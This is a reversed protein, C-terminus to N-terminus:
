RGFRRLSSAIGIMKETSLSQTLTNAVWYVGRKTRWAVLRVSRGDRYVMLARGNRKVTQHPDDLIPPYRWSMGQIGYYEGFRQNSVVLRYAKHKKGREDKIKYIRPM